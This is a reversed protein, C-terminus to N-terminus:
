FDFQSKSLVSATEVIGEETIHVKVTVTGHLQETDAAEPYHLTAQGILVPKVVSSDVVDDSTTVGAPEAGSASILLSLGLIIKM